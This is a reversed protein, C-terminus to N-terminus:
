ADVRYLIEMYEDYTIHRGGMSKLHSTEVQCDIMHFGNDAMSQALAILAIKSGSPVLSFMSEGIFTKNFLVGYLGGVLTLEMNDPIGDQGETSILEWVEVSHAIGEEHLKTYANIIDDGLWAGEEHIRLKGCNRIVGDFDKDMTTLYKGKNLLTRMSHSIHIEEPFIVFRDMPCYWHLEDNTIASWPFIGQAYAEKLREIHLDGGVAYLGDPYREEPPISTPDPFWYENEPLQYITM